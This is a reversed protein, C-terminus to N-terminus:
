KILRTLRAPQWGDPFGWLPVMPRLKFLVINYAQYIRVEEFYKVRETTVAQELSTVELSEFQLPDKEAEGM